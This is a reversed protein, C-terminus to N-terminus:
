ASLRRLRRGIRRRVGGTLGALGGARPPAGEMEVEPWPTARRHEFYLERMSMRCGRHWPKNPGPGEFHRIAPDSRAEQVGKAGFVYASWPFVEFSNMCNWRPHLARRRPGLVVNLADQDRFMLDTARNQVGFERMAAACGDRRMADLNMLMVGANFYSQPPDIGLEAARFLHDAQLVNTVAALYHDSLDTEWLSDLADVVLVDADLFLVRDLEGLLEPAFIRYWTAKRTFGQIPLDACMADPVQVFSIEGRAGEVMGEVAAASEATFDPGHLYHVRIQRDGRHRLVSHLMAASHPVYSREVACAVQLLSM